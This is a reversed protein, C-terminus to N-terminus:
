YDKYLKSCGCKKCRYFWKKGIPYMEVTRGWYDTNDYVATEKLLEWEHKCFCSKIYDILRRM